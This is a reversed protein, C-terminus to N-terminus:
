PLSNKFQNYSDVYLNGEKGGLEQWTENIKEIRNDPSPHTSLFEPPTPAGELLEFFGAVGRADYSTEYLYKVSFRDAQYEHDRSFALSALGAALDAAIQALAGADEGLVIALLLQIGYAKELQKVTHRKAVHAMEHALVGAFQAENELFKILGTYFYMYGGPVAFANLVDDNHIIYVEYAFDEDYDVLGSGLISDRIRNLHQYAEPYSAPNLVPYEQPNAAIEQKFQLGFAIDDQLSFFLSTAPADEDKKCASFTMAVFLIPLIFYKLQKKM